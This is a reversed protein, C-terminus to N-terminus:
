GTKWDHVLFAANKNTWYLAYDTALLSIISNYFKCHAISSAQTERNLFKHYELECVFELEEICINM